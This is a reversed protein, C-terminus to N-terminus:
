ETHHSGNFMMYIFVNGPTTLLHAARALFVTVICPLQANSQDIGYRVCDLLYLLMLPVAHHQEAAADVHDYYLRLCHYAVRRTDDDHSSLAMLLYSLCHRAAFETCHVVCEATVIYLYQSPLM